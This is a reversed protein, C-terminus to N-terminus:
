PTQTGEKGEAIRRRTRDTLHFLALLVNTKANANEECAFPGEQFMELRDAVIALLAENTIGNIGEAPDRHQFQMCSRVRSGYNDEWSIEYDYGDGVIKLNENLQGPCLPRHATVEHTTSM